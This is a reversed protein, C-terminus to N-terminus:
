CSDSFTLLQLEAIKNKKKEVNLFETGCQQKMWAEIDAAM